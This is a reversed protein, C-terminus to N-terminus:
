QWETFEFEVKQKETNDVIALEIYKKSNPKYFKYTAAKKVDRGDISYTKKDSNYFETSAVDLAIWIQEGAKYGAQDIAQKFADSSFSELTIILCPHKRVYEVVAALNKNWFCVIIATPKM